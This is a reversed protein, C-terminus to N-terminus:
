LINHATVHGRLAPSVWVHDLRRGRDSLKWDRNRYSWWSFIKEELPVVSRTVDIWDWGALIAKLRDTEVPTHSIVNLLQKHSWVDFEHPAVNLDGVVVVRASGKDPRAAWYAEKEELFRLKHAFKDNVAPD